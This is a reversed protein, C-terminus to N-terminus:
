TLVFRLSVEMRLGNRRYRLLKTPEGVVAVLHHDGCVVDSEHRCECM